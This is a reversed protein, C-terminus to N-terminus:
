QKPWLDMSNNPRNCNGVRDCLATSSLSLNAAGFIESCNVSATYYNTKTCLGDSCTTTSESSDNTVGIVEYLPTVGNQQRYTLSINRINTTAYIAEEGDYYQYTCSFKFQIPIYTLYNNITFM